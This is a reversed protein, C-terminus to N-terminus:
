GRFQYDFNYDQYDPYDKVCNDGICVREQRDEFHMNVGCGPGQCIRVRVRKGLGCEKSCRSFGSWSGWGTWAPRQATRSVTVPKECCDDKEHYYLGFKQCNNSGCVLDGKCGRHGDSQGGDGPGDCDGEGEDCPKEPTCCRRGNYNRGACRQGIRPELPAGNLQMPSRNTVVRLTDPLDCCDDKDHYFLGFKRCNNSGCVLEGRCGAHGDNGGGDGPGDCDGEGYGCPEQPTCCRKGNFNRGACRQGPSPELRNRLQLSTTRMSDLPSIALAILVYFLLLKREPFMESEELTEM